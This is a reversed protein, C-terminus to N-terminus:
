STEKSDPKAPPDEIPKAPPKEFAQLEVGGGMWDQLGLEMQWGFNVTANGARESWLKQQLDTLHPKLVHSEPLRAYQPYMYLRPGASWAKNWKAKLTDNLEEHQKPSLLLKADIHVLMMGIAAQAHADNRASIEDRYKDAVDASLTNDIEALLAASIEERPNPWNRPSQRIRQLDEYQKSLRAVALLGARHIQDFQEQDPECVKQVFHLEVTLLKAIFPTYMNAFDADVKQQAVNDLVVRQPARAPAAPQFLNELANLLGGEQAGAPSTVLACGVLTFATLAHRLIM